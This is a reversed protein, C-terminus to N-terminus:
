VIFQVPAGLLELTGEFDVKELTEFDAKPFREPAALVRRASLVTDRLAAWGGADEVYDASLHSRLFPSRLRTM